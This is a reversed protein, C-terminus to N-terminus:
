PNATHKEICPGLPRIVELILCDDVSKYLEIDLSENKNDFM